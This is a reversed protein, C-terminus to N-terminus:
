KSFVDWTSIFCSDQLYKCFDEVDQPQYPSRKNINHLATFIAAAGYDKWRVEKGLDLSLCNVLDFKPDIPVNRDDYITLLTKKNLKQLFTQRDKILEFIAFSKKEGFWEIAKDFDYVKLKAMGFM